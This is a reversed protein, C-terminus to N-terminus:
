NDKKKLFIVDIFSIGFALGFATSFERLLDIESPRFIYDLGYNMAGFLSFLIIFNLISKRVENWKLKKLNIMVILPIYLLMFFTFVVYTVVFKYAISSDIDKYIIFLSIVTMVLFLIYFIKTFPLRKDKKM